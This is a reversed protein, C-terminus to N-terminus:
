IQNELEAKKDMVASIEDRLSEVHGFHEQITTKRNNFQQKIRNMQNRLENENEGSTRLQSTLRQNQETLGSVQQSSHRELQKQHNSHNDIVDKLDVNDKQLDFIRQELKRKLQYKEQELTQFPFFFM